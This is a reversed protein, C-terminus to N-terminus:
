IILSETFIKQNARMALRKNGERKKERSTAQM